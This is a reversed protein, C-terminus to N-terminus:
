ATSSDRHPRIRTLCILRRFSVGAFSRLYAYCRYLLPNPEQLRAFDLFYRMIPSFPSRDIADLKVRLRDVALPQSASTYQRAESGGDELAM